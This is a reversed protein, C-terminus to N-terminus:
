LNKLYEDVLKSAYEYILKPDDEAGICFSSNMTLALMFDLILEERHKM